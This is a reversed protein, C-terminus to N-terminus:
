YNCIAKLIVEEASSSSPFEWNPKKTDISTGSEIGMPKEHFSYKLVKFRSMKCDTQRYIQTSLYGLHNVNQRDKLTWFFLYENKKLIREFDVFFTNGADNTIVKTWEGNSPVPFITVSLLLTLVPAISRLIKRVLIVTM